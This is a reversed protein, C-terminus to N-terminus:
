FANAALWAASDVLSGNVLVEFHLHPASSRGTSGVYGILQGKKVKQGPSVLPQQVQHAYRTEVLEGNIQSHLTVLNGYAGSMGSTVVTGDAVAYIETGTPAMLDTGNHNPRSSTQFGNIAKNFSWDKLPFVVSGELPDHIPDLEVSALSAAKAVLQNNKRALERAEREKQARLTALEESSTASYNTVPLAPMVSDALATYRQAPIEILESEKAQATQINLPTVVATCVLTSILIFTTVFRFWEPPNRVRGQATFSHM